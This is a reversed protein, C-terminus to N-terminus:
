YLEGQLKRNIGTFASPRDWCSGVALASPRDWCFGVISGLLLQRCSGVISGSLHDPNHPPSRDRRDFFICLLPIGLNFIVETRQIEIPRCCFRVEAEAFVCDADTAVSGEDFYCPALFPLPSLSLPLSVVGLAQAKEIIPREKL